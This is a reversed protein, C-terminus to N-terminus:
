TGFTGTSPMAPLNPPWATHLGHQKPQLSITNYWHQWPVTARHHLVHGRIILLLARHQRCGQFHHHAQNHPQLPDVQLHMMTLLLDQPLPMYSLHSAQMYIQHEQCQLSHHPHRGHQPVLRMRTMTMQWPMFHTTPSIQRQPRIRSGALCQLQYCVHSTFQIATQRYYLPHFIGGSRLYRASHRLRMWNIVHHLHPHM